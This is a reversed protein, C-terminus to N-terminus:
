NRRPLREMNKVLFKKVEKIAQTKWDKEFDENAILSEKNPSTLQWHSPETLHHRGYFIDCSRHNHRERVYITYIFGGFEVPLFAQFPAFGGEEWDGIIKM